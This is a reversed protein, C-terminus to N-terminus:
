AAPSTRRQSFLRSIHVGLAAAIADLTDVTPNHRGSEIESIRATAMGCADALAAQTLGAKKRITAINAGVIESSESAVTSM